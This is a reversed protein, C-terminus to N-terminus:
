EVLTWVKNDYKYQVIGKEQDLILYVEIIEDTDEIYEEEKYVWVNEFGGLTDNQMFRLQKDLVTQSHVISPVTFNSSTVLGAFYSDTEETLENEATLGVEVYDYFEETEPTYTEIGAKFHLFLDGATLVYYLNDADYYECGNKGDLEFSPRCTVVTCLRSSSDQETIITHERMQGSESIFSISSKESYVETFASTEESFYIEGLKTNDDICEDKCNTFILTCLVFILTYKMKKFTELLKREM